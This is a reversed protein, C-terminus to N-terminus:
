CRCDPKVHVKAGSALRYCRTWPSAPTRWGPAAFLDYPLIGENERHRNATDHGILVVGEATCAGPNRGDHEDSRDCDPVCHARFDGQLVDDAFEFRMGADQAWDPLAATLDDAMLPMRRELWARYEAETIHRDPENDTVRYGYGGCM